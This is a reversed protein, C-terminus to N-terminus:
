GQTARGGGTAVSAVRVHFSPGSLREGQTGDDAAARDVRELFQADVRFAEASTIAVINSVGNSRQILAFPM